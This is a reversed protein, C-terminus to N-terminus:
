TASLRLHILPYPKGQGDLESRGTRQFGFHAYFGVAAENQENVDVTIEKADKLAHRILGSGIGQGKFNPDVFLADIHKGSMGMFGVPQLHTNVAVLVSVMPFYHDELLSEIELFDAESLFHHTARVSRRWIDMLVGTDKWNSKRIHVEMM